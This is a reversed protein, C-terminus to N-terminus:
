TSFLNHIYNSVIDNVLVSENINLDAWKKKANNIPVGLTTVATAFMGGVSQRNDVFLQDHLQKTFQSAWVKDFSGNDWNMPDQKDNFTFYKSSNKTFESLRAASDDGYIKNLVVRPTIHLPQVTITDLPFQSDAVTSTWEAVTEKTDCPLGVIFSGFSAVHPLQDRFRNLEEIVKDPHLGKRIIKGADHCLTEIGFHAGAIGADKLLQYQERHARMLDIRLYASYRFQFPLSQALKAMQELKFTNDNHTDDSIIYTTTGHEYYNRILEERLSEVHKIYSNDFKGVHRYNCFSCDFKCGRGVEIVLPENSRIYDTPHYVTQSNQFDFSNNLHDGNVVIRSNEQSFQFFPNKNDLFKLLEVIAIDGYGKVIVDVNEVDRFILLGNGGVVVKITPCLV